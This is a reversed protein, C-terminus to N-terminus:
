FEEKQATLDLFGLEGPVYWGGEPTRIGPIDPVQDPPVLEFFGADDVYALDNFIMLEIFRRFKNDDDYGSLLLRKLKPDHIKIDDILIEDTYM